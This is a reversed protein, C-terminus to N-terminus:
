YVRRRPLSIITAIQGVRACELSWLTISDIAILGVGFSTEGERLVHPWGFVIVEKSITTPPQYEPYRVEVDNDFLLKTGVPLSIRISPHGYSVCVQSQKRGPCIEI